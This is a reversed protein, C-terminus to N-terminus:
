NGEAYDSWLKNLLDVIEQLSLDEYENEIITLFKHTLRVHDKQAITDVISISKKTRM